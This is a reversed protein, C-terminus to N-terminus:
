MIWRSLDIGTKVSYEAEGFVMRVALRAVRYGRKLLWADVSANALNVPITVKRFGEQLCYAEVRDIVASFADESGDQLVLAKVYADDSAGEERIRGTQVLAFGTWLGDEEIPIVATGPDAERGIDFGEIIAGTIEAMRGCAASPIIKECGERAGTLEREVILTPTVIRFGEKRYFGINYGSEAMTELGIVPCRDNERLNALAARLLRKGIGRGRFAEDVGFTGLWGISGWTRSFIFGVPKGDHKATFCGAPNVSCAYAINERTRPPLNYAQFARHDIRIVDDFDDERMEEITVSSTM